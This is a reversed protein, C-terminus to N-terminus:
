LTVVVSTTTVRWRRNFRSEVCIPIPILVRLHLSKPQKPRRGSRPLLDSRYLLAILIGRFLRSIIPHCVFTNPSCSNTDRPHNKVTQQRIVNVFILSRTYLPSPEPCYLLLCSSCPFIIPSSITPIAFQPAVGRPSTSALESEMWPATWLILPDHWETDPTLPPIPDPISLHLDKEIRKHYVHM